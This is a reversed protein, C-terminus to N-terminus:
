TVKDGGEMETRAADLMRQHSAKACSHKETRNQL